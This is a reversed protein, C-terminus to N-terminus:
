RRSSTRRSDSVAKRSATGPLFRRRKKPAMSSTGTAAAIIGWMTLSMFAPFPPQSFCAIPAISCSAALSPEKGCDGGDIGSTDIILTASFLRRGPIRASSTFASSFSRSNTLGKGARSTSGPRGTYARSAWNLRGGARRGRM